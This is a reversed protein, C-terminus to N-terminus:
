TLELSLTPHADVDFAGPGTSGSGVSSSAPAWCGALHVRRSGLEIFFLVIVSPEPHGSTRLAEGGDRHCQCYPRASLDTTGYGGTAGSM